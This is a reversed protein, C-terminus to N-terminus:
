EALEGVSLQNHVKFIMQIIKNYKGTVIQQHMWKDVEGFDERRKMGKMDIVGAISSEEALM